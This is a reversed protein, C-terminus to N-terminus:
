LVVQVQELPVITSSYVPTDVIFRWPGTDILSRKCDKKSTLFGTEQILKRYQHVFHVEYFFIIPFPNPPDVGRKVVVTDIQVITIASRVQLLFKSVYFMLMLYTLFFIVIKFIFYFIPNSSFLFQILTSSRFHYFLSKNSLHGFNQSM